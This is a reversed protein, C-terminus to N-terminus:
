PSLCEMPAVFSIPGRYHTGLLTQKDSTVGAQPPQQDTFALQRVGVDNALNALAPATLVQESSTVDDDNSRAIILLDAKRALQGLNMLNEVRDGSFVMSKGGAEIRWALAPLPERVLTTTTILLEGNGYVVSDLRWKQTIDRPQLKYTRKGLPSLLEGLYRYVGRKSDFLTRVLTVTSPMLKGRDPGYIPLPRSRKEPLSLQILWPFDGTNAVDLQTFLIVDLDVVRAGSATFSTASDAGANVLVRGKGNLWVLYSGSPQGARNQGATTGLVQVQVNATDCGAVAAVPWWLSAFLGAALGLFACQGQANRGMVDAVSHQHPLDYILTTGNHQEVLESLALGWALSVM